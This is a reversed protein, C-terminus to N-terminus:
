KRFETLALVWAFPAALAAIAPNPAKRVGALMSEESFHYGVLYLISAKFKLLFTDAREIHMRKLRIYGMPNERTVKRANRSYGDDRYDALILVKNLTALEYHEDILFYVYTEAIFKEGEAVVFPYRRLIDTRYVVAVDGKHGSRYYLDWITTAQHGEPMWTGLPAGPDTGDLGVIGALGENECVGNWRDLIAEIADPVLSDDSDVCFFLPQECAAVGTNWARQKGGNDQCIYGVSIENRAALEEVLARTDDTSGDDVILWYFDQCTQSVLSRYLGELCYARNFTPTFVCISKPTPDTM